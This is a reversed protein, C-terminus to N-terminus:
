LYQPKLIGRLQEKPISLEPHGSAYPAISYVDYKLLVRDRLLAINRTPQFQWFAVFEKDTAHGKEVLWRQHTEAALSWFAAEQGPLLLDALQLERDGRREYNIFGRGPLGHAGGTYQYSSLEIVILGDHQERVQAQLYSTQEPEAGSLYSRQYERLSAPLPDNAHLRTMELLRQEILRDLAPEDPFHLTDINVLPCAEGRCGAPREEWAQREYRAQGGMPLLQCASLLLFSVLVLLKPM